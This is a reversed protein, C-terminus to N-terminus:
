QREFSVIVWNAGVGRRRLHFTVPAPPNAPEPNRRYVPSVSMRVSITASDGDIAAVGRDEIATVVEVVDSARYQGLSREFTGQYYSLDPFVELVPAFSAQLYADRFADEFSDLAADIGQFDEFRALSAGFRELARQAGEAADEDPCPELFARVRRLGAEAEERSSPEGLGSEVDLWADDGCPSPPVPPGPPSGADGGGAGVPGPGPPTLEIVPPKPLPELAVTRRITQGAAVRIAGLLAPVYGELAVEVTYVGPDLERSFGNLTLTGALGDDITVRAGRPTGTISLVAPDTPPPPPPAGFPRDPASVALYIIPDDGVRTRLERSDEGAPLLTFLYEGPTLPPLSLRGEVLSGAPTGDITVEAERCDCLIEMGSAYGAVLFAPADGAPLSVDPAVGPSTRFALSLTGEASAVVLTHPGAGDVDVVRRGGSLPGLERDDLTLTGEALDAVVQLRTPLPVLNLYFPEGQDASVEVFEEAPRYGEREARILYSGPERGSLCDEPTCPEGDVTLSAGPVNVQILRALGFVRDPQAMYWVLGAGLGLLVFLAAAVVPIRPWVASEAKESGVDFQPQPGPEPTPPPSAAELLARERDLDDQLEALRTSSLLRTADDILTGALENSGQSRLERAEDLARRAAEDISERLRTTEVRGAFERDLRDAISATREYDGRELAEIAEQCLATAVDAPPRQGADEGIKGSEPTKDGLLQVKLRALREDDPYQGSVNEVTELAADLDGADRFRIADVLAQGITSERVAARRREEVYKLLQALEESAPWVSRAQRVEDVATVLRGADLLHDVRDRLKRIAEDQEERQRRERLRDALELLGPEDPFEELGDRLVSDASDTQGGALAAEAQERIRKLSSQKRRDALAAEAVDLLSGLERDDSGTAIEGRILEVAREFDERGVLDRAERLCEGRRTERRLARLEESGPHQLELAALQTAAEEFSEAGLLVRIQQLSAELARQRERREMAERISGLLESAGPESPNIELASTALQYAETLDQQGFRRSAEEVLERSKRVKDQGALVQKRIGLLAAHSDDLELGADVERLAADLDGGALLERAKSAISTLRSDLAVRSELSQITNRLDRASRNGPDLVLAERVAAAARQLDHADLQREGDQLLEVVRRQRAERLLPEMDLRLEEATQYRADRDKSLARMVLTDLAEPCNSVCDRLPVPDLSTIAYMLSAPDRAEFPHRGSLFEYCVVGLSFIDTLVDSDHARFQEPAMYRMTGIFSGEKTLRSTETRTIRAIGFDLIKVSSDRLVMVNGPKVDRHVVGNAHAHHLGAATQSLVSLQQHLPLSVGSSITEQLNEGELLEMVIFPLGEEEGFDYINVINPHRLNAASVAENRFRRLLEPDNGASLVKIAVRRDLVPDLAAYVKGFGGTGVVSELRYKGLRRHDGLGERVGDPGATM